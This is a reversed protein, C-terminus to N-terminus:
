QIALWLMCCLLNRRTAYLLTSLRLTAYLLTSYRLSAYLLTSYRLSAYLLTSFRLTALTSFRLIQYKRIRCARPYRFWTVNKNYMKPDVLGEAHHTYPALIRDLYRNLISPQLNYYLLFLSCSTFNNKTLVANKELALKVNGALDFHHPSFESSLKV